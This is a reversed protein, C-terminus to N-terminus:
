NLAQRLVRSLALVRQEIITPVECVYRISKRRDDFIRTSWEVQAALADIKSKDQEPKDQLERLTSVDVRIKHALEKENRAVREIGSMVETHQRSLTDFVGAFIKKAKDQKEAASGTVFDAITKEAVDLPTRRAALRVVVDQIKPDDQWSNGVDAISPGDWMSAVSMQPVKPQMCPWDPDRPDAADAPSPLAAAAACLSLLLALYRMMQERASPGAGIIAM